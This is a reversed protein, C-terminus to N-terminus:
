IETNIYILTKFKKNINFNMLKLILEKLLYPIWGVFTSVHDVKILCEKVLETRQEYFSDFWAKILM